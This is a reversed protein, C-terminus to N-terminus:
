KLGEIGMTTVMAHHIAEGFAKRYKAYVYRAFPESWEGPMTQIDLDGFRVRSEQKGDSGIRDFDLDSM